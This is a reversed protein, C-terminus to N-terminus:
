TPKPIRVREAIERIREPRVKPVRVEPPKVEKIKEMSLVLRRKMGAIREGAGRKVVFLGISLAILALVTVVILPVNYTREWVARLKLPRDVKMTVGTASITQGTDEVIWGKFRYGTFPTDSVAESEIRIKVTAGVDYWGDPSPPEVIVKSHESVVVLRFQHRWSASVSLPKDVKVTISREDSIVDGSWGTFVYRELDSVYVTDNRVELKAISGEDYWGEGTTVGQAKGIPDKIEVYYQRTYLVEITIPKDAMFTRKPSKYGDSWSTFILRTRNDFVVEEPVEVEVEQDPAVWMLLPLREKLKWARIEVPYRCLINFKYFPGVYEFTLLGSTEVAVKEEKSIVYCIDGLKVDAPVEVTYKRGGPLKFSAIEGARIEKEAVKSGEFEIVITIKAEPPLGKTTVNVVIYGIVKFMSVDKADIGEWSVFHEQITTPEPSASYVGSKCYVRFASLVRDERGAMPNKFSFVAKEPSCLPSKRLDVMVRTYFGEHYYGKELISLSHESVEVISSILEVQEKHLADAHDKYCVEYFINWTTRLPIYVVDFRATGDMSIRVSVEVAFLFHVYFRTTDEATEGDAEAYIHVVRWGPPYGAYGQVYYIQGGKATGEALVLVEGTPRRLTLRVYADKNVRFYIRVLEGVAYKDKSTWVEVTLPAQARVPVVDALAAALLLALMVMLIRQESRLRLM